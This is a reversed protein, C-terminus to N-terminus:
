TSNHIQIQKYIIMLDNYLAMICHKFISSYLTVHMHKKGSISLENPFLNPIQYIMTHKSSQTQLLFIFAKKNKQLWVHIWETHRSCSLWKTLWLTGWTWLWIETMTYVVTIFNPLSNTSTYTEICISYWFGAMVSSHTTPPKTFNQLSKQMIQQCEVM